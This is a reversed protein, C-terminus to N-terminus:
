VDFFWCLHHVGHSIMSFSEFDIGSPRCDVELDQVDLGGYSEVDIRQRLAGPSSVEYIKDSIACVFTACPVNQNM